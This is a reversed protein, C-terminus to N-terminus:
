WPNTSLGCTHMCATYITTKVPARPFCQGVSNHLICVQSQDHVDLVKAQHLHKTPQTPPHVKMEPYLTPPLNTKVTEWEESCM